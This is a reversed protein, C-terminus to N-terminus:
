EGYEVDRITNIKLVRESVAKGNVYDHSKWIQITGRYSIVIYYFNVDM